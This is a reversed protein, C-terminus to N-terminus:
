WLHHFYEFLFLSKLNFNFVNLNTSNYKIAPTNGTTMLASKIASPSWNPHLSKAYAAVGTVHPCAMSTGFLINYSISRRDLDPYGSPSSLPSFAALIDVGPASIDPQVTSNNQNIYTNSYFM